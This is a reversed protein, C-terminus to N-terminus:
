ELFTFLMDFESYFFEQKIGEETTVLVREKEKDYEYKYPKGQKFHGNNFSMNYNAAAKNYNDIYEKKHNFNKKKKQKIVDM